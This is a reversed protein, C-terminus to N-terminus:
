GAFLYEPMRQRIAMLRGLKDDIEFGMLESDYQMALVDQEIEIPRIPQGLLYEMMQANCFDYAFKKSEGRVDFKESFEHSEFDFDGAGVADAIRAFLGIGNSEGDVTLAPFETGLDLLFFSVYDHRFWRDYEWVRAETNISRSHYDFLTISHEQFKGTMVNIAYHGRGKVKRLFQLKKNMHPHLKPSLEFGFRRALPASEAIRQKENQHHLWFYYPQFLCGILFVILKLLLVFFWYIARIVEVPNTRSM